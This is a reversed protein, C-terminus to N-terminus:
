YHLDTKMMKYVYGVSCEQKGKVGLDTYMKLKMFQSCRINIWDKM